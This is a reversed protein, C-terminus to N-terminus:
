GEGVVGANLSEDALSNLARGWVSSTEQWSHTPSVFMAQTQEHDDHNPNHFIVDDDSTGMASMDNVASISRLNLVLRSILTSTLLQSFSAGIVKLDLPALKVM